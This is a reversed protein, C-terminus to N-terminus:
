FAINEDDLFSFFIYKPFEHLLLCISDVEVVENVLWVDLSSEVSLLIKSFAVSVVSVYELM